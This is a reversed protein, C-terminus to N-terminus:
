AGLRSIKEKNEKWLIYFACLQLGDFKNNNDFIM